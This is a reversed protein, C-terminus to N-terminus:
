KIKNYEEVLDMIVINNIIDDTIEFEEDYHDFCITFVQDVFVCEVSTKKCLAEVEYYKDTAQDFIKITKVEADSLYPESLHVGWAERYSSIGDLMEEYYENSEFLREVRYFVKIPYMEQEPDWYDYYIEYSLQGREVPVCGYNYIREDYFCMETGNNIRVGYFTTETFPKYIRSTFYYDYIGIPDESTYGFSTFVIESTGEIWKVFEPFPMNVASGYNESAFDLYNNPDYYDYYTGHIYKPTFYAIAEEKTFVPKEDSESSLASDSLEESGVGSCGSLEQCSAEESTTPSDSVTSNCSILFSCLIVALLSHTLRKKVFSKNKFIKM